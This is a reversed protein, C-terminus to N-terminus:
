TIVTLRKGDADILYAGSSDRLEIEPTLAPDHLNPVRFIDFPRLPTFIRM